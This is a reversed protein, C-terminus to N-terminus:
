LYPFTGFISSMIKRINDSPKVTSMAEKISNFVFDNNSIYDIKKVSELQYRERTFFKLDQTNDVRPRVLHLIMYEHDTLVM